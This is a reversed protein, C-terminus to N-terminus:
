WGSAAQLASVLTWLRLPWRLRNVAIYLAPMPVRTYLSDISGPWSGRRSPAPLAVMVATLTVEPAPAVSGIIELRYLVM